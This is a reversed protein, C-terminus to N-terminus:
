HFLLKYLGRATLLHGPNSTEDLVGAMRRRMRESRQGRWIVLDALWPHQNVVNAKAYLAFQPQLSAIRAAYPALVRAQDDAPSAADPAASAGAVDKALGGQLLVEAAMLGTELAKGIGEGTFDYTSGIAEGTALLGPRGLQAGELTCRLPAGKM